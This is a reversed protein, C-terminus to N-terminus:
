FLATMAATSLAKSISAASKKWNEDWYETIVADSDTFSARALWPTKDIQWGDRWYYDRRNAESVNM